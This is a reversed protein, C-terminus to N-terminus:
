DLKTKYKSPLHMTVLPMDVTASLQLDEGPRLKYEVKQHDLHDEECAHVQEVAPRYGKDAPRLQLCHQPLMKSYWLSVPIACTICAPVKWKMNVICWDGKVIRHLM